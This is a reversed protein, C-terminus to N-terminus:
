NLRRTASSNRCMSRVPVKPRCSRRTPTDYGTRTFRLPLQTKKLVNLMAKRVNAPDIPTGVKTAFLWPSLESWGHKLKEQKCMMAHQALTDALSLSMEVTRGHGSEPTDLAGDESFARTIRITRSTLDIDESQLALGKGLRM